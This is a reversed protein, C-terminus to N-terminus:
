GGKNFQKDYNISLKSLHDEKALCQTKYKQAKFHFIEALPNKIWLNHKTFFLAHLIIFPYM